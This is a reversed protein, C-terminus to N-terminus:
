LFMLPRGLGKMLLIDRCDDDRGAAVSKSFWCLARLEAWNPLTAGVDQLVQYHRSM